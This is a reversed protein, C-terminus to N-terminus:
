DRDNGPPNDPPNCGGHPNGGGEDDHPDGPTGFHPDGTEHGQPNCRGAEVSPVISSALMIMAVAGIILGLFITKSM